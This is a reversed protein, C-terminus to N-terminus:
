FRGAASVFLRRGPAPFGNVVAYRIDLANDVGVTVTWGDGVRQLYRLGLDLYGAAEVTTAPFVSFDVDQRPGVYHLVGALSAADTLRYAV